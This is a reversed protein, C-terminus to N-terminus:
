RLSAVLDATNWVLLEYHCDQNNLGKICDTVDMTLDTQCRKRVDTPQHLDWNGSTEVDRRLRDFVDIRWDVLDALRDVVGQELLRRVGKSWDRIATINATKSTVAM